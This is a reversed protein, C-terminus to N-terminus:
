EQEESSLKYFNSESKGSSPNDIIWLGSIKKVVKAPISNKIVMM